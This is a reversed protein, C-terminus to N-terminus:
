PSAGPAALLVLASRVEETSGAADGTSAEAEPLDQAKTGSRLNTWGFLFLLPVAAALALAVGLVILTRRREQRRRRRRRRARDGHASPPLSIREGADTASTGDLLTDTPPASTM